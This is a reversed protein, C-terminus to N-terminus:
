LLHSGLVTKIECIEIYCVAMREFFSKIHLIHWKLIWSDVLWVYKKNQLVTILQPYKLGIISTIFLYIHKINIHFAM